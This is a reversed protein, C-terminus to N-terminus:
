DTRREDDQDATNDQVKTRVAETTKKVVDPRISNKMTTMDPKLNIKEGTEEDEKEEAM